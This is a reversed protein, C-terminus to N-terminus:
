CAITAITAVIAAIQVALNLWKIWDFYYGSCVQSIFDRLVYLNVLHQTIALSSFGCISQDDLRFYSKLRYKLEMQRTTKTKTLYFHFTEIPYHTTPFPEM